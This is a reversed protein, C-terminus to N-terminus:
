FDLMKTIIEYSFGKRQLYAGAKQKEKYTLNSIDGYKKAIINKVTELETVPDFKEKLAEKILDPPVGKQKLKYVLLRPGNKGNSVQYSLWELAYNYDDLYKMECLREVVRKIVEESFGKKLLHNKVEFTTRPRYRLYRLTLNFGKEEEEMM